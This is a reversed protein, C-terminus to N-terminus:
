DAADLYIVIQATSIKPLVVMRTRRRIQQMRRIADRAAWGAEHMAWVAFSRSCFSRASLADSQRVANATPLSTASAAGGGPKAAILVAQGLMVLTSARWCSM